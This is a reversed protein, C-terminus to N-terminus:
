KSLAKDQHNQNESRHRDAYLAIAAFIVVGLAYMVLAETGM